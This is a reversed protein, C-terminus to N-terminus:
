GSLWESARTLTAAGAVRASHSLPQKSKALRTACGSWINLYIYIYLNYIYISMYVCIYVYICM